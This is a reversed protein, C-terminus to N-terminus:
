GQSLGPDVVRTGIRTTIKPQLNRSRAYDKLMNHASALNEPYMDQGFGHQDRIDVM